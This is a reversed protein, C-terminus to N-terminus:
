RPRAELRALNSRAEDAYRAHGPDSALELVREWASRAREVDGREGHLVALNKQASINRLNIRLSELYSREADAVKAQTHYAYGLKFYEDDFPKVLKPTFVLAAAAVVAGTTM